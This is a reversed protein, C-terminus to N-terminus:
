NKTPTDVSPSLTMAAIPLRSKGAGLWAAALWFAAAVTLCRCSSPGGGAPFNTLRAKVGGGQSAKLVVSICALISALGPDSKPGRRGFCLRMSAGHWFHVPM